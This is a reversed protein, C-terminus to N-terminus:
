TNSPGIRARFPAVVHSQLDHRSRLDNGLISGDEDDIVLSIDDIEKSVKESFFSVTNPARIVPRGGQLDDLAIGGIQNESVDHHGMDITQRQDTLQPITAELCGNDQHARCNRWAVRIHREEGLWEIDIMDQFHNRPFQCISESM